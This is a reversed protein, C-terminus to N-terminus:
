AGAVVGAQVGVNPIMKCECNTGHQDSAVVSGNARIKYQSTLRFQQVTGNGSVALGTVM